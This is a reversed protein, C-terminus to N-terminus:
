DETRSIWYDARRKDHAVALVRVLEGGYVRYVLSYPYRKFIYRRTRAKYSPWRYPASAVQEVAHNLEAVFGEEATSGKERYWNRASEVERVAEPHFIIRSRAV